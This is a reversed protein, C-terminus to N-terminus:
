PEYPPLRPALVLRAEGPPLGPVLAVGDPDFAIPVALGDARVVAGTYVGTGPTGSPDLARLWAVEVRPSPGEGIGALARRALGRTEDDPDLRAALDLTRRRSPSTADEARTALARVVARRVDADVEYAYLAALRGSADPLPSAGLGLAVHARLLADARALVSELREADKPSKARRALALAALPGDPNGSGARAVLEATPTAQAAARDVLAAALLARVDADKEVRLREGLAKHTEEAPRAYAGMIAARRTSPDPSELAEGLPSQGLAVRTHIAVARLRADTSQAAARTIADMEADRTGRVLARLTYARIADRPMAAALGRLLEPVNPAPSRALAVWADASIEKSKLWKPQALATAAAPLPSRGLAHIAALRAEVDPAADVRAVLAKTIKEDHVRAALRLADPGVDPSELLALVIKERDPAGLLVLAEAAAAKLNTDKSDLASKALAIARDDGLEALSVLAAGRLTPDTARAAGHLLDLARLDGIRGLMRAVAPPLTGGAGYFGPERPAHVTLAHLAAAQGAGGSRAAGYVLELARDQHAGALALAATRRALDIRAPEDADGSARRATPLRAAGSPASMNMISLLTQRAKDKDAHSALCRSLELLARGDARLASSAEGATSLSAIAEPTGTECARQVGRLRDDPDSSRLLRLALDAGFRGKFWTKPAPARSTSRPRRPEDDDEMHLQARATSAAAVLALGAALGAARARRM